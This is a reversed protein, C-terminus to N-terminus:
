VCDLSYKAGDFAIELEALKDKSLRHSQGEFKSLRESFLAQTRCSAKQDSSDVKQANNEQLQHLHVKENDGSQNAGLGPQDHLDDELQMVEDDHASDGTTEKNSEAASRIFDGEKDIAPWKAARDLGSLARESPRTRRGSQPCEKGERACKPITPSHHNSGLPLQGNPNSDRWILFESRATNPFAGVSMIDRDQRIESHCTEIETQRQLALECAIPTNNKGSEDAVTYDMQPQGEQSPTPVTSELLKLSSDKSLKPLKVSMPCEACVIICEEKIWRLSYYTSWAVDEISYM